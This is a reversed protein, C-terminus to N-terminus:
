QIGILVANSDGLSNRLRLRVAGTPANAPIAINVQNVGIFGPALGSFLVQPRSEVGNLTLIAEVPLRTSQLEVLSAPAGTVVTGDVPGLGSAYVVLVDGRSAPNAADVLAGNRSNVVVGAETGIAFIGPSASALQIAIPMSAAGNRTVVVQATTEGALQWPVQVNAQGTSTFYLPASLLNFYVRTEALRAPLPVTTAAVTSANFNTGFLSAISGASVPGTGFGAGRLVGNSMLTPTTPADPSVTAIFFGASGTQGLAALFLRTAGAPVVFQKLDGGATYGGGIYFPQQILPELRVRNKLDGDFDLAAPQTRVTDALFVGVLARCPGDVRSLSYQASRSCSSGGDPARGDVAGVATIRLSQGPVVPIGVSKPSNLPASAGTSAQTGNAQVALWLDAAGSVRIPNTPEEPIDAVQVDVTFFGATNPQRFAAVYLRTAGNPVVIIRNEGGSTRGTGIPFPQQILPRLVPFERTDGDFNIDPPQTRATDALFVGVLIACPADLRSIAFVPSHFCASRGDPPAGDVSGTARFQLGQGPVIPISTVQPPSNLPASAGSSVTIGGAQGALWLDSAGSVRYTASEAPLFGPSVDVQFSGTNSPDSFPALFLRTAGQPTVFAVAAGEPTRGGGIFFPQQILPRQIPLNRADGNFNVSPPAPRSSDALFVGILARCPADMRPIGFQASNFCASGGSPPRGDVIGTAAFNLVQGGVIPVNIQVPSNAPATHGLNSLTGAPQGALWLGSAGSVTVTTQAFAPLVSLLIFLIQKM